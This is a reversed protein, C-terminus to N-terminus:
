FRIAKVRNYNFFNKIAQKKFHMLYGNDDVGMKEALASHVNMFEKFCNKDNEIADILEQYSDYMNSDVENKIKSPLMDYEHVVDNWEGRKNVGLVQKDKLYMYVLLHYRNKMIDFDYNNWFVHKLYCGENGLVITGFADSTADLYKRWALIDNELLQRVETDNISTLLKEEYTKIKFEYMLRALASKCRVQYSDMEVEFNLLSDIQVELNKYQQVKDETKDVFYFKNLVSQIMELNNKLKNDGCFFITLLDDITREHEEPIADLLYIYEKRNSQLWKNWDLEEDVVKIVELQSHQILTDCDSVTNGKKNIKVNNGCAMFCVVSLVALCFTLLNTKM